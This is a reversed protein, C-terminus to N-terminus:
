EIYIIGDVVIKKRRHFIQMGEKDQLYDRGIIEGKFLEFIEKGSSFHVTLIISNDNKNTWTVKNKNLEQYGVEGKSYFYGTSDTELHFWYIHTGEGLYQKGVFQSQGFSNITILLFAIKVFVTKM